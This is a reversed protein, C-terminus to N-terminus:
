PMCADACMCAGKCFSRLFSYLDACAYTHAGLTAQTCMCVRLTCYSSVRLVMCMCVCVCVRVCVIHLILECAAGHVHLCVCVCVCVRVCVLVCVYRWAVMVANFSATAHAM